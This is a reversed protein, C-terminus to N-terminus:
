PLSLIKLGNVQEFHKRNNTLLTLRHQLCIAAILLDLDGPIRGTKRLRGREKGFIKCTDDQIDLVDFARLFDQVGEMTKGPDRSSYVGEYLEAVSVISVAVAEPTLEKLKLRTREDGRIHDVIWDTDLLYLVSV